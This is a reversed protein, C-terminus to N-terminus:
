ADFHRCTRNQAAENKVTVRSVLKYTRNSGELIEAKGLMRGTGGNEKLLDLYDAWAQM